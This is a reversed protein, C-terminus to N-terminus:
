ELELNLKENLKDEIRKKYNLFDVMQIEEIPREKLLAPPPDVSTIYIPYYTGSCRQALIYNVVEDFLMNGYQYSSFRKNECYFTFNVNNQEINSTVQVSLYRKKHLARNSSRNILVFKGNENKIEYFMVTIAVSSNNQYQGTKLKKELVSEFFENFHNLLVEDTYFSARQYFLSGREDLVYIQAYKGVVQYFLQVKDIKNVEYILPLPTDRLAYEDIYLNVFQSNTEGLFYQLETFTEKYSYSLLDDKLYLIYYKNGCVLLYRLIQNDSNTLFFKCVSPFLKEMRKVLSISYGSSFSHAVFSETIKPDSSLAVWHFYQCLTEVLAHPERYSFNFVEHWSTTLLLDFSIALNLASNGYSLIDNNSVFDNSSHNYYVMPDIGINIFLMSQLMKQPQYLHDILPPSLEGNPAFSRLCRLISNVEKINLASNRSQVVTVTQQNIIKNLYGWALLTVVSTSHKIPLSLEQNPPSNFLLWNEKSALDQQIILHTEFLEHVIGLYIIDIKEPKRELAAFLRRGLINMDNQSITLIQANERGFNSLFLYSNKLEELLIKREKAVYQIKWNKRDDIFKIQDREWGWSKILSTLLNRRWEIINISNKNTLAINIKIYFCRRIVELRSSKNNQKLHETLKNFLMIYPDLQDLDIIGAYVSKKYRLCLLDIQPYERAYIEMLLIKLVSKYPSDIGKSVQWLGAGVFEEAPIKSIGGFDIIDRPSITNSSILSQLYNDYDNEHGPPILWWAPYRGAVFLGTRYFEELLLHHQATGSNESTIFSSYGSKFQTAEMLFFHVELSITRAWGEIATAKAKLEAIEMESLQPNYCLWIDLDSKDSHAITGVSGILFISYIAYNPLLYSTLNQAKFTRRAANLTKLTPSYNSIGCPTSKSIYGSLLPHNIHFLIPLFDIFDKQRPRLSDQTRILRQQNIYFFRKTVLNLDYAGGIFSSIEPVNQDRRKRSFYHINRFITFSM